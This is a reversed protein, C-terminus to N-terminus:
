APTRLQASELNRGFINEVAAALVLEHTPYGSIEQVIM